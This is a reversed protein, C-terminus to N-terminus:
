EVGRLFYLQGHPTMGSWKFGFALAAKLSDESLPLGPKVTCAIQVCSNEKAYALVKVALKKAIGSQRHEPHVYIHHCHLVNPDRPFVRVMAFGNDVELLKCEEREQVFAHWIDPSM